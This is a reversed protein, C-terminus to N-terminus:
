SVYWIQPIYVIGMGLPENTNNPRRANGKPANREFDGSIPTSLVVQCIYTCHIANADESFREKLSLKRPPISVLAAPVQLGGPGHRLVDRQPCLIGLKHTSLVNSRPVPSSHDYTAKYWTKTHISQFLLYDDPLEIPELEFGQFELRLGLGERIEAIENFDRFVFKSQWFSVCAWRYGDEQLKVGPSFIINKPLYRVNSLLKRTRAEVPTADLDKIVSGELAMMGALCIYADGEKTTSRGNLIRLSAAMAPVGDRWYNKTHAKRLQGFEEYFITADRDVLSTALTQSRSSKQLKNIADSFALVGDSLQVQLGKAGLAGEQMTWVRRMWGSGIMRLLIDRSSVDKQLSLLESDLVLVKHARAYTASMRSIAIRRYTKERPVCLTDIWLAVSSEPKRLLSKFFLKGAPEPYLQSCLKHLRRIQCRPLSNGSVCGMRGFM